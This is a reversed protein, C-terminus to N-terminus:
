RTRSHPDLYSRLGDGLLNIGLVLMLLTLGPYIALWSARTIYQRGETLMSGLSPTPLQVGLGLFSLGAELLVAISVNLTMLAIASPLIHPLVHQRLIRGGGAGISRAATVFQQERLAMAEARATRAYIMWQGAAIVLILNRLNAGVVAMVTIALLVLPIALMADTFRMLVDDLWGGAYGALSGLAIGFVAAVLVAAAAVMLSVRISTMIRAFVDRGLGDTGLLHSRDGGEQWAPPQLRNVLTQDYAADHVLPAALAISVFFLTLLTGLAANPYSRFFGALRRVRGPRRPAARTPLPEFAGATV